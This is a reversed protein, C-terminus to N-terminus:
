QHFFLPFHEFFRCSKKFFFLNSILPFQRGTSRVIVAMSRKHHLLFHTHSACFNKTPLPFLGVRRGDDNFSCRSKCLSIRRLSMMQFCTSRPRDPRNTGPIKEARKGHMERAPLFGASKAEHINILGIADATATSRDELDIVALSFLTCVLHLQYIPSVDYTVAKSSCVFSFKTFSHFFDCLSNFTAPLLFLAVCKWRFSFMRGKLHTTHADTSTFEYLLRLVPPRNNCTTPAARGFANSRCSSRWCRLRCEDDM